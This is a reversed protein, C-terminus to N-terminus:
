AFPRMYVALVAVIILIMSVLAFTKAKEPKRFAMGAMGSLGLWCVLKIVMWIPFGAHLKAQLGFGAILALLSFIGTNRLLRSRHEAPAAFAQFTYAALLIVSVVHIIYYVIPDM